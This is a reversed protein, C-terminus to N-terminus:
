VQLRDRLHFIAYEGFDFYVFVRRVDTGRLFAVADPEPAVAESIPPFCRLTPQIFSWGAAGAAVIVLVAILQRNRNWANPVQLAPLSWRPLLLVAATVTALAVLRRSRIAAAFTLVTWGWSWRDADVRRSLFVLGGALLVAWGLWPMLSGAAASWIPSWESVDAWGRRMADALAFWLHIGYPTILTAVICAAAVLLSRRSRDVVAHTVVAGLGILWGGHTNAWVMFLAPLWAAGLNTLVVAYLTITAIQPRTSQWQGICGVAVVVLTVARMWSPARRTARDITWLVTGILSIRLAILGALGLDRYLAGVVVDWLWEHNVWRQDHTFSYPDVWLFRHETLMDLGIALHGWIDTDTAGAAAWGCLVIALALRQLSDVYAKDEPRLAPVSVTVHETQM